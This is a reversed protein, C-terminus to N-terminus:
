GSQTETSPDTEPGDLEEPLKSRISLDM